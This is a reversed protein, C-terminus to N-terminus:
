RARGPVLNGLVLQGFIHRGFQGLLGGASWTEPLSGVTIFSAVGCSQPALQSRAARDVGSVSQGNRMAITTRGNPCSLVAGADRADEFFISEGLDSQLRM